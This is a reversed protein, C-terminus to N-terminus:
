VKKKEIIDALGNNINILVDLKQKETSEIKELVTGILLSLAGVLFVVSGAIVNIERVALLGTNYVDGAYVATVKMSFAYGVWFVGAM